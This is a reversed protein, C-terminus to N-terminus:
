QKQKIQKVNTDPAIIKKGLYYKDDESHHINVKTIRVLASGSNVDLLIGEMGSETKFKSGVDLTKLYKYGKSPKFKLRKVRSM